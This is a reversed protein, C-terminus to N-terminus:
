SQQLPGPLSGNSGPPLEAPEKIAIEIEKRFTDISAPDYGSMVKRVIGKKDILVTYPLANVGYEVQSTLNSFVIPWNIKQDTAFSKMRNLEDNEELSFDNEIYGYFKTVSLLEVGQSKYDDHIKRLAPFNFHSYLSWNAFFNIIVVKGLHSALNSYQGISKDSVIEPAPSGPLNLRNRTRIITGKEDESLRPDALGESLTANGASQNSDLFELEAKACYFISLATAQSRTEELTNPSTIKQLQRNFFAIADETSMPDPRHLASQGAARMFNPADLPHITPIEDLKTIAQSYNKSFIYAELLITLAASRSSQPPDTTLYKDYTAPIFAYREAILLLNMWALCDEAGVTQLNFAILAEDALLKSDQAIKTRFAETTNKPDKALEATRFQQIKSLAENPNPTTQSVLIAAAFLNALM